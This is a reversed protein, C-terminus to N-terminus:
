RMIVMTAPRTQDELCGVDVRRGVHRAGGYLDLAADSWPLNVGKGVLGSGLPLVARRGPLSIWDGEVPIFNGDGGLNELPSTACYSFTAGGALYWNFPMPTTDATSAPTMNADVVCNVIRSGATACIGAALAPFVDSKTAYRNSVVTCNEVTAAEAYLGVACTATGVVTAAGYNNHAVLCNRVTGDYVAVVAVKYQRWHYFGKSNNNTFVCRDVFSSQGLALVGGGVTHGGGNWNHDFLCDVIRGNVCFVGHAINGDSVSAETVRCNRLESGTMLVSAGRTSHINSSGRGRRITVNQVLANRATILMTRRSTNNQPNGNIVVDHFDGSAGTLTIDKDIVLTASLNYNNASPLVIVESGDFAANVATQINPAATEPTAYPYAAAANGNAAYVRAPALTVARAFSAAPTGGAASVALTVTKVGYATDPYAFTHTVPTASSAVVPASGDGFNWEYVLSGSSAAGIAAPTFTAEFSDTGKLASATFSCALGDPGAEACGIDPRAGAARTGRRLDEAGAGMWELVAGADIAPSGVPLRPRGDRPDLALVEGTALVGDTVGTVDSSLLATFSAAAGGWENTEAFGDGNGLVICNRAVASETLRIGPVAGRGSGQTFNHLITCNDVVASDTALVGSAALATASPDVPKGADNEAIFSNRLAGGAIYAAAGVKKNSSPFLVPSFCNTIVCRDALANAGSQYLGLGKYDYDQSNGNSTNHMNIGDIVCDALLGNNNYVGVGTGFGTCATVRCNTVTGGNDIMIGAGNGNYTGGSVTFSSLVADPHAIEFMPHSGTAAVVADRFDGTEGRITVAKKIVILSSPTLRSGSLIVIEGGDVAADLVTQLDNAATAPTAYPPVPNAAASGVYQTKVKMQFLRSSRVGLGAGNTACLTVVIDGPTALEYAIQGKDAGSVDTVGDGDTDWYYVLGETAGRPSATLTTSLPGISLYGASSAFPVALAGTQFEEHGIDPAGNDLRAGGFLDTAGLDAATGAVVGADVLPSSADLVGDTTSFSWLATTIDVNDASLGVLPTTACHRFNAAVGDWNAVTANKSCGNGFIICNEVTGASETVVGAYYTSVDNGAVNGYITCNVLRGGIVRAGTAGINGATNQTWAGINNFAIVSDRLLGGNLWVGGGGTSSGWSYTLNATNNTIVLREGLAAAGEQAYGIGASHNYAYCGDILCDVVTGNKNYIGGGYINESAYGGKRNGLTSHVNTVTGGDVIRINVGKAGTGAAGRTATMSAVYGLPNTIDICRSATNGDVIVDDRNGTEGIVFLYKNLVFPSYTGPLVHVYGGVTAANIAVQIDTAATEPTLYPAVPNPSNADVYHHTRVMANLPMSFSASNGVGNTVSLTANRVGGEPFSFAVSTKDAGVIDAAGDGDLDWYYTLGATEGAVVSTLTGAFPIFGANTVTTFACLLGGPLEFEQHGIDPTGYLIRPTGFFDTGGLDAAADAVAGADILGAVPFVPALSFAWNLKTIDLAGTGLGDAPTTACNVFNAADGCWNEVAGNPGYNGAIVCNEVMGAGSAYVGGFTGPASVSITSTVGNGYVTCNIMRGGSIRVGTGCKTQNYNRWTTPRNFAIISNRLIGGAIFAGAGTSDNNNGHVLNAYNNTIVLREALALAGTQYLGIGFHHNYSYNGDILCDVVTGGDNNIGSGRVNESNVSGKMSNAVIHCNTITGGTNTIGRSHGRTATLSSIVADAHSVVVCIKSDGGDVVVDKWDGTAGRVTVGKAVTFPAYAAASAAVTIVDGAAAADVAAQIEAAATAPTDYPAAAGANGKSVFRETAHASLVICLAIHALCLATLTRKM